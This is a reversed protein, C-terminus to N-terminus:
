LVVTPKISDVQGFPQPFNVLSLKSTPKSPQLIMPPPPPPVVGDGLEQASELNALSLLLCPFAHPLIWTCYYSSMHPACSSHQSCTDSPSTKSPPSNYFPIVLVAPGSPLLMCGAIYLPQASVDYFRLLRQWPAMKLTLFTHTACPQTLM